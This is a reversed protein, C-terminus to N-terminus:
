IRLINKQSNSIVLAGPTFVCVYASLSFMYVGFLFFESQEVHLDFGHGARQSIVTNGVTGIKYKLTM